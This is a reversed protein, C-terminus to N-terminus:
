GGVLPGKSYIHRNKARLRPNEAAANLKYLRQYDHVKKSQYRYLIEDFNAEPHDNEMVKVLNAIVFSFILAELSTLSRNM